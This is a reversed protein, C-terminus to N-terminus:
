NRRARKAGAFEMTDLWSRGIQTKQDLKLRLNYLIIFNPSLSIKYRALIPYELCEVGLTDLVDPNPLSVSSDFPFAVEVSHWLRKLLNGIYDGGTDPKTDPDMLIQTDPDCGPNSSVTKLPAM